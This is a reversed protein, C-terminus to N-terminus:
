FIKIKTFPNFYFNFFYGLYPSVWPDLIYALILFPLCKGIFDLKQGKQNLITFNFYLFIGIM